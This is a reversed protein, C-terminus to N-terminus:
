KIESVTIKTDKMIKALLGKGITKTHNPITTFRGDPHKLIVHSGSQRIIIFGVKQIIKILKQPKIQPLHGM